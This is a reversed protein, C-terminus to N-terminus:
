YRNPLTGMYLTTLMKIKVFSVSSQNEAKTEYYSLLAVLFLMSRLLKVPERRINQSLKNSHSVM